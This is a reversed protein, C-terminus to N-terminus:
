RHKRKIEHLKEDYWKVQQTAKAIAEDLQEEDLEVDGYDNTYRGVVRRRSGAPYEWEARSDAHIVSDRATVLDSFFSVPVPGSGLRQNLLELRKVLTPRDLNTGGPLEEVLRIVWHDLRAVLAVAALNHAARRLDGYFTHVFGVQSLMAEHDDLALSSQLREIEVDESRAIGELTLKHNVVVLTNLDVEFDHPLEMPEDSPGPDDLDPMDLGEELV